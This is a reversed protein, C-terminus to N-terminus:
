LITGLLWIHLILWYGILGLRARPRSMLVRGGSVWLGDIRDAILKGQKPVFGTTNLSKFVHGKDEDTDAKNILSDSELSIDLALHDTSGKRMNRVHAASPVPSTANKGRSPGEEVETIETGTPLSSAEYISRDLVIDPQSTRRDQLSDELLKVKTTLEDIVKQSGVLKIDLEQAKSKSNDSESLIAIIHKELAPILEKLGKSKRDVAWEDAGSINMIKELVYTLESLENKIIKADECNRNLQKVEEKMDKIELDKTELISQLNEKDHSLSNLQNHLRTVSDIIYLLKKMPASTQLELDDEEAEVIPIKTMDIKDFLERMQSSTLLSNEEKALLANHMSSIEAEKEELKEEQAHFSELKDKLESCASQLSQIDSELRSVINKYSDREDAVLEFAVTTEKLKNQLDEITADLQKSRCEFQRILTQAKRSANILKHTAEVYKSNRHHEAQAGAELNLKEVEFISDPQGLNKDVESQLAVTSDTCASLLVSVNNELTAIINEQEEKLREMTNAEEKMIEMKQVITLSITETELLKEHLPSIFEDMCDSFEDFKDAIHKNSLQFAKVIKGFSSIISDIDAGDIETNDLEVKFNEPGDLLTKQMLPNEEMVLQGKSDKATLAVNDRIKNLILNMNRMTECKAEFCQKIRTFLTTDKMLVQLDNLLGILQLSRNELSENKGALEDMCSNLKLDLSSIEQKAIKNSYELASIDDQAKSLADELSKITESAGVLKNAYNGAEDQLKKLENEMDIKVVQDANYKETLLNVNGEVQSLKDELDKITRSAEELKSTRSAAEDKFSELVREAAVRSVQAQEKEESLISIDKDAQSLADELIKNTDEVQYLKDELDKINRSAEVLKSTQSVAEDKLTELEREAAVRSVQAQEKEESLISIEKEAESLADELSKNTSCGEAVKEKVKQLEEEIKAKGRELETKEEALQSLSDDSSSLEQELSKVTAQFEAVKIELISAKEKVLQLEKELHVKADQCESVYGALWKVKEIPEDFVPEVVLLTIGDICEMVKQLMNNSEMLFHELQNREKKMELLDAELKPISEVDSSLRNIEDRYESVASEQKQLGVKLQEIESNRENLLGKLNDRDQVLGKGKKVAMSLKDRLMATKEESRDLDQLLSSREEKLTVIEECAVKLENSLKNMGSRILMEEELIDEYLILGQDRVYLLSQIKEFLEADIVSARSPGSQGKIIQFCLDIIVSTNSSDIGEDEKNLGCLDVLMNVIHDKELSIQSNKGVLKDYKFRLDTLESLLYDKEQLELLLSVSLQDINNRSAEQVASNEEQLTDMHDRARLFSDVLWNMQSEMDYSSVPEPLDVLSLAEKLKCLEIFAEKLTNREDVLWRLKEPVDFMGPEDPKADCLIEQVQDFIANKELLLNQLSAVMNESYALEEKALEATQIAVSKEQLEILCKELESSKDALSKKLSDRQQVLAKGKTVAMSLKEKTNACKVKEQELEIKLNGLETNLAGIMVKEKDLEDVVKRNEDELQALKEVLDTERRKLELLGGHVDALINGYEQEKTDVSVESFFQRLQYVDSLIQNYMGILHMTGEEIYVIKGSISDDLVQEQTVVTALSSITKDILIEVNRDKGLQAESSVQFSNNSVVLQAVKANLDEIERDRSSLHERLNSITTESNSREESATSVFELCEKIMERVPVDTVERDRIEGENVKGTLTKLQRHLDLLGQAVTQREDQYEQLVRENETDAKELQDPSHADGMGNGMEVFHRQQQHMDENEQSGVDENRATALEEEKQGTLEDPCDVFMDDRATDETSKEDEPEGQDQNTGTNSETDVVVGRGSDVESLQEAVHNESMEVNLKRVGLRSKSILFLADPHDKPLKSIYLYFRLLDEKSVTEPDVVDDDCTLVWLDESNVRRLSGRCFPCSESKRNWKRYCKICMAHCCGPLVMKTCPELCIGCEDERQLDVNTLRGSAETVKKGYSSSEISSQGEEVVELKELSGHLRQLSPLIVAYFDGITAKRGHTSMNSRGDNHVKYIIIHFLNLYRHLFGACSCDMWQLFLLFLPALQNYVLKMQLLTGGKARPIAAALANAHQIDAELVKLSDHYPLRSLQYPIMAM